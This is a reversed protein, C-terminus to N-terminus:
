SKSYSSGKPNSTNSVASLHKVFDNSGTKVKVKLKIDWSARPMKTGGGSSASIPQKEIKECQLMVSPIIVITCKQFSINDESTKTKVLAM